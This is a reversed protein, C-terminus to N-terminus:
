YFNTSDSLVQRPNASLASIRNLRENIAVPVRESEDGRSRIPIRESFRGAIIAECSRTIV